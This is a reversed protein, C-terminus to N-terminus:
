ANFKKTIGQDTLWAEVSVTFKLKDLKGQADIEFPRALKGTLDARDHKFNIDRFLGVHANVAKMFGYELTVNPNLEAAARDELIAIGYKCGLMHICVNEWLQDHYANKDARRAKLGYANLTKDLENWIDDLLQVTEANQTNPDPFKMMVFVSQEFPITERFKLVASSLHQFGFPLHLSAESAAKAVHIKTANDIQIAIDRIRTKDQELIAYLDDVLAPIMLNEGLIVPIVFKGYARAAGIDAAMWQSSIHPSVGNFHICNETLLAVLGDCLTVADNLSRKWPEGPVLFNLDWTVTHGLRQLEDVLTKAIATDLRSELVHLRAM